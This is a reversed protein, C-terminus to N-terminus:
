KVSRHKAPFLQIVVGSGTGPQSKKGETPPERPTLRATLEKVAQVLVRDLDQSDFCTDLVLAVAERDGHLSLTLGLTAFVTATDDSHEAPCRDCAMSTHHVTINLNM